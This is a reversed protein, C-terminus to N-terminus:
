GATQRYQRPSMGSYQKFTRSFHFEDAFGTAEAIASNSMGADLLERALEIKLRMFYRMPSEQKIGKFLRCFYSKELGVHRSVASLQLRGGVNSRMYNVAKEIYHNAFMKDNELMELLFAGLHLEASKRLVDSGNNYLKVVKEIISEAEHCQIGNRYRDKIKNYLAVSIGSMTFSIMYQSIYPCDDAIIIRHVEDPFSILLTGPLILCPIGEVNMVGYGHSIYHLEIFEHTHPEIKKGARFQFHANNVVVFDIDNM